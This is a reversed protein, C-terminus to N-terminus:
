AILAPAIRARPTPRVYRRIGAERARRIRPGAPRPGPAVSPTWSIGCRSVSAWTRARTNRAVRDIVIVAKAVLIAALPIDATIAIDGPSSADAIYRDAVDPGGDVRVMTILMQGLPVPVRHNAVLVVELKLREAARFVIEKVERPAADADIWVKVLHGLTPPAYM